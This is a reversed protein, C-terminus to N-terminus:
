YRRVIGPAAEPVALAVDALPAHRLGGVPDGPLFRIQWIKGSRVAVRSPLCARFQLRNRRNVLMRQSTTLKKIVTGPALGKQGGCCRRAFRRYSRATIFKM